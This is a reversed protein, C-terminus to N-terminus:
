DFDENIEALLIIVENYSIELQEALIEPNVNGKNDIYYKALLNKNRSYTPSAHVIDLIIEFLENPNKEKLEPVFINENFQHLNNKEQLQIDSEESIIPKSSKLENEFSQNVSPSSIEFSESSKETDLVTSNEEFSQNLDSVTSESSDSIDESIPDDINKSDNKILRKSAKKKKKTKKGSLFKDLSM